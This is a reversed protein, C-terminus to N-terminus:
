GNWVGLLAIEHQFSCDCWMQMVDSHTKLWFSFRAGVCHGPHVQLLIVQESGTHLKTSNDYSHICLWQLSSAYVLIFTMGYRM